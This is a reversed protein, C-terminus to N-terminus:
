MEIVPIHFSNNFRIPIACHGLGRSVIMRVDCEESSYIGSTYKPFLGQGPSYLGRNFLRFQGGHAHGTLIIDPNVSNNKNYYEKFLEPRHALLVVDKENINEVDKILLEDYVMANTVGVFVTNNIEVYENELVLIGYRKLTSKWKTYDPYSEEHNGPIAIVPAIKIIEMCFLDLSSDKIVSDLLDGTIVIINPRILKVKDVIKSVRLYDKERIHIDSLHAIKLNREKKINIKIFEVKIFNSDIVKYLAIIFIIFVVHLM